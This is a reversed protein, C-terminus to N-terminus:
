VVGPDPDMFLTASCIEVAVSLVPRGSDTAAINEAAQLNPLAAGCGMGMIDLPRVSPGLGAGEAVYSSLGPCLYGTCTNVVISSVESSKIHAEEM